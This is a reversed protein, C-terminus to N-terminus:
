QLKAIEIKQGTVTYEVGNSIIVIHGDRIVKLAPASDKIDNVTTTDTPPVYTSDTSTSDNSSTVTTENALATAIIVALAAIILTFKKM